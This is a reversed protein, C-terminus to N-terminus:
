NTSTQSVKNQVLTMISIVIFCMLALVGAIVLIEIISPYYTWHTVFTSTGDIYRGSAIPNSWKVLQMGLPTFTLPVANFAAPMLLFRHAFMGGIILLSNFAIGTSTKIKKYNLLVIIGILPLLVEAAHILLNEKITILIPHVASESGYWAKIFFENYMLFLHIIFGYTIFKIMIKYVRDTKENKGYFIVSFLLVIAVGSIVAVADFDPSLVGTHWWERAGQTSFIWSTVIHVAIAFVFAIPMLIKIWKESVENPNKMKSNVKPFIKAIEPLMIFYLLTISFVVFVSLIIFDWVLPSSFNPHLLINFLREPRGMDVVVSIMAAITNALSVIIGLKIYPKLGKIKFIYVSTSFIMAGAANGVFFAFAAIYLGWPFLNSLNTVVLGNVLQYIWAAIGILTILGTVILALKKNVTM